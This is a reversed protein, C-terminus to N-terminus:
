SNYKIINFNECLSKTHNSIARQEIHIDFRNM